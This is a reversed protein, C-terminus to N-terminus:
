YLIIVGKPSIFEIILGSLQKKEARLKKSLEDFSADSAIVQGKEIAIYKNGFKEQLQKYNKSIFSSDAELVRFEQLVSNSEM